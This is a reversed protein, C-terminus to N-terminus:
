DQQYPGQGRLCMEAFVLERGLYAAHGLQTLESEEDEFMACCVSKATKERYEVSAAFPVPGKAPVRNGTAPDCVFGREDVVARFWRVVLDQEEEDVGIVLFGAPDLVIERNSLVNDNELRGATAFIAGEGEATGRM